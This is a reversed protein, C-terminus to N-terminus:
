AQVNKLYNLAIELSIIYDYRERTIEKTTEYSHCGAGQESVEFYKGDTEQVYGGQLEDRLLKEIFDKPEIYVEQILKAYIKM